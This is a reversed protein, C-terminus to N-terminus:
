CQSLTNEGCVVVGVKSRRRRMLVSCICLSVITTGISRRPYSTATIRQASGLFGINAAHFIQTSGIAGNSTPSTPLPTDRKCISWRWKSHDLDVRATINNNNNSCGTSHRQTQVLILQAKRTPMISISWSRESQVCWKVRTEM